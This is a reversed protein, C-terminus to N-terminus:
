PRWPEPGGPKPRLFKADVERYWAHLRRRMRDVTEPKEAALDNQEGVDHNLDYLHVRGDEFREILKYDGMRVAAGPFGGQNCYNPYALDRTAANALSSNLPYTNFFSEGLQPISRTM